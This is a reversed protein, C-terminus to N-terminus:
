ATSIGSMALSRSCPSACVSPKRMAADPSPASVPASQSAERRVTSPSPFVSTVVAKKKPTVSASQAAECRSQSESASSTATPKVM